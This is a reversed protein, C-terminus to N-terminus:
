HEHGLLSTLNGEVAGTTAGRAQAMGGTELRLTGQPRFLLVNGDKAGFKSVFTSDCSAESWSTAQCSREMTRCPGFSCFVRYDGLSSRPDPRNVGGSTDVRPDTSSARPETACITLRQQTKESMEIGDM